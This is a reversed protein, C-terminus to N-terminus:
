TKRVKYHHSLKRDLLMYFLIALFGLALYMNGFNFDPIDFKFEFKSVSDTITEIVTPETIKEKETTIQPAYEKIVSNIKGSFLFWAAISFLLVMSILFVWDTKEKIKSTSLRGLQKMVKEAIFSPAAKPQASRLVEDVSSQKKYELQCERCEIFHKYRHAPLGQPSKNIAQTIEDFNLHENM